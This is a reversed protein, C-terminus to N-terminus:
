KLIVESVFKSGVYGFMMFAFAIISWIAASKGRWSTMSRKLLLVAYILWAIGTLLTKHTFIAPRGFVIEAFFTGSVLAVTLVVFGLWMSQFMFKELSLLPPLFGLGHRFQHKHLARRLWLILVAILCTIGFLSYSLLSTAIHLLFPANELKYALYEGPFIMGFLLFVAALPFLLLQLGRLRYFFSGAFYLALMLWTIVAVAYGLGMIVLRDSLIPMAISIGHALLTPALLIQELRAPYDQPNRKQQWFWALAALAMYILLVISLIIPM